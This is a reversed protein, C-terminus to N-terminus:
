VEEPFIGKLTQFVFVGFVFVLVSIVAANAMSYLSPWKNYLFMDQYAIAFHAFPNLRIMLRWREPV